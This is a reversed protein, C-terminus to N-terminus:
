ELFHKNNLFQVDYLYKNKLIIAKQQLVKGLLRCAGPLCNFFDTPEEQFCRKMEENLIEKSAFRKDRVAQKLHRFIFFDSPVLDPSYPPHSFVSDVSWLSGRYSCIAPTYIPANDTLFFLYCSHSKRRKRRVQQILNCYYKMRADAFDLLWIGSDDWFASLM